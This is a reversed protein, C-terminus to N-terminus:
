GGGGQSKLMDKVYCLTDHKIKSEYRISSCVENDMCWRYHEIATNLKDPVSAQPSPHAYFLPRGKKTPTNIKKSFRPQAYISASKPPHEYWVPEQGEAKALQARLRTIEKAQKKVKRTAKGLIDAGNKLVRDASSCHECDPHKTANKVIVM